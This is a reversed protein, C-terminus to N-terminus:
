NRSLRFLNREVIHQSENGGPAFAKFTGVHHVNSNKCTDILYNTLWEQATPTMAPLCYCPPMEKEGTEFFMLEECHEWITALLKTAADLGYYKVWHHWVSLLLILDVKPLLHATDNNIEMSLFGVKKTNNIKAAYRAIRFFRDDMEVGITAIGLEELSFSFYGVNCGLDLASSISNSSIITKMAAWRDNCGIGRRAEHYGLWPLPQYPLGPFVDYYFQIRDIVVQFFRRIGM